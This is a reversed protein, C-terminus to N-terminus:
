KNELRKYVRVSKISPNNPMTHILTMFKGDTTFERTEISDLSRDKTNKKVNWLIDILDKLIQKEVQDKVIKNGYLLATTTVERGDATTEQYWTLSLWVMTVCCGEGLIAQQTWIHARLVQLHVLHQNPDQRRAHHLEQRHPLSHLRDWCLMTLLLGALNDCLSLQSSKHRWCIVHSMEQSHATRVQRTFWNVGIEYMYDSFGESTELQFDGLM